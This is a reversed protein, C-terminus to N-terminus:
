DRLAHVRQIFILEARLPCRFAGYTNEYELGQGHAEEDNATAGADRPHHEADRRVNQPTVWGSPLGGSVVGPEM